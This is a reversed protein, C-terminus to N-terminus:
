YKVKLEVRSWETENNMTIIKRKRKRIDQTKMKKVKLKLNSVTYQM